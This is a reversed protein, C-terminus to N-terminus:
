PPVIRPVDDVRRPASTLARPGRRRSTERMVGASSNSNHGVSTEDLAEALVIIDSATADDPLWIVACRVAGLADFHARDTDALDLRAFKEGSLTGEDRDSLM